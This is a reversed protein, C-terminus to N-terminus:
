AGANGENTNLSFRLAGRAEARALAHRLLARGVSRRPAEPVVFIDELHAAVGPAWVSVVFRAQTYGVARDALWACGFESGPDRPAGYPGGLARVDPPGPGDESQWSPCSAM